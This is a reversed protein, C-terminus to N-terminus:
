RVTAYNHRLTPSRSWAYTGCRGSALLQRLRKRALMEAQKYCHREYDLKLRAWLDADVTDPEPGALECDPASPPRVLTRYSRHTGSQPYAVATKYATASVQISKDHTSAFKDPTAYSSCAAVTLAITALAAVIAVQRWGNATPQLRRQPARCAQGLTAM